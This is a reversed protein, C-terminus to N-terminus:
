LVGLLPLTIALGAALLLLNFANVALLDLWFGRRRAAPDVSKLWTECKRYAQDLTSPDAQMMLKPHALLQEAEVVQRAERQVWGPMVRRAKQLKRALGKGRVGLRAEILDALADSREKILDQPQM